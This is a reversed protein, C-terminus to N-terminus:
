SLLCAILIGFDVALVAFCFCFVSVFSLGFWLLVGLVVVAYGLVVCRMTLLGLCVLWFCWIGLIGLCDWM